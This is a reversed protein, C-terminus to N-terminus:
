GQVMPPLQKIVYTHMGRNMEWDMKNKNMQFCDYVNICKGRYLEAYMNNVLTWISHRRKIYFKHLLAYSLQETKVFNKLWLTMDSEKYGWPSCCVLIRQGRRDGSTEEFEYGNLRHYWALMEDETMEKEEQGWNKGADPDKGTFQSKVDSLWLVLAEAEADIKGIFIWPQNGEPNIKQDRQLGLSEWSDEGTWCWLKCADIRWHEAKKICLKWM